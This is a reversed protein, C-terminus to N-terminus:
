DEFAKCAIHEGTIEELFDIRMIAFLEKTYECITEPSDIFVERVHNGSYTCLFEQGTQKCLKSFDNTNM